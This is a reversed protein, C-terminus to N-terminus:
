LNCLHQLYIHPKLCVNFLVILLTYLHYTGFIFSELVLGDPGAAKDRKQSEVANIVDCVTVVVPSCSKGGM